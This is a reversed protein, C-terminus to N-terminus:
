EKKYKFGELKVDKEPIWKVEKETKVERLMRKCWKEFDKKDAWAAVRMAEAMKVLELNRRKMIARSLLFYQTPTFELAMSPSVLGYESM